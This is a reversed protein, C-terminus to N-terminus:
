ADSTAETPSAGPLLQRVIPESVIARSINQKDNRTGIREARMGIREACIVRKCLGRLLVQFAPSRAEGPQWIV